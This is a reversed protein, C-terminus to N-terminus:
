GRGPRARLAGALEEGTMSAALDAGPHRAGATYLEFLLNFAELEGANKVLACQLAARVTEKDALSLSSLAQAADLHEGVSVGIGVARLEDVLGALM